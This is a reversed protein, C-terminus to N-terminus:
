SRKASWATATARRTTNRTVPSCGCSRASRTQPTLPGPEQRGRDGRRRRGPRPLEGGPKVPSCTPTSSTSAAPHRDPHEPRRHREDSIGDLHKVLARLSNGHAAVLVTRGALLDPVIADYWYPLMRVVVDKLCETRPRLEAPLTPTARTAPRRSSTTTRRDAAAPHRVLPALAHVAGRRVRRPDAEQGQGAARRLAARQAALLPPGPDLAPRGGRARAARHPDRAAAALHAAVDPLLDPESCCSAAAARRTRARRPSTSTSGAPSCTRRTGTARATASCSWRTHPRERARARLATRIGSPAPAPRPTPTRDAAPRRPVGRPQRDVRGRSTRWAWERASRRRSASSSSPTSRRRRVYTWCRLRAAPRGRGATVAHLPVRGVLYIDGLHDVAFAVGYLRTNRELLWRYFASTTRTRAAPLRVGRGVPQARRRRPLLHDQLKHEGPLDVVFTGPTPEEYSSSPWRRACRRASATDQQSGDGTQGRAGAAVERECRARRAYVDLMGAPPRRGASAPRRARLAGRRAGRLRAPRTALTPWCTPARRGPRARRGARRVRRRRRRDRLGGVAAAVVPTGCAQSELAVLGFSENYSPVVTVDAARYWDALRDQPSRRCSGSSTTSASSPPWRRCRRRAPWGAAAVARRRRRRRLRDRLSPDAAVLRAAARLLVDPAKLPQIGASSCCCSARRRRRGLPARAAASRAAPRSSPRPRRRAARRGGPRPRRRVPRVLQRAEDDTNAVLRDAAEVVQARRDRAAGARPRRRRRAALNKVKAMTHMSHVLPM